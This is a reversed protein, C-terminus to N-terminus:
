VAERGGWNRPRAVWAYAPPKATVAGTLNGRAKYGVITLTRRTQLNNVGTFRSLHPGKGTMRLIKAPNLVCRLQLPKKRDEGKKEAPAL